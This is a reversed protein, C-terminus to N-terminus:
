FYIPLDMLCEDADSAAFTHHQSNLEGGFREFVHLM